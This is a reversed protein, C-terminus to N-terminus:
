LIKGPNFRGAPDIAAKVQRMLALAVPSKLRFLEDRRLQGIGHEASISGRYTTVLDHILRNIAATDSLFAAGDGGMPQLLNFHLNGDGLHGFCLLRAAPYQAALAKSAEAVFAPVSAVPVAIDHKISAGELPQANVIGERLRWLETRQAESEALLGDSIQATELAEGL